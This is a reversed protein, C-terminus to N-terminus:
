ELRWGSAGMAPQADTVSIGPHHSIATAANARANDIPFDTICLQHPFVWAVSGRDWGAEVRVSTPVVVEVAAAHRKRGAIAQSMAVVRRHRRHSPDALSTVAQSDLIILHTMSRAPGPGRGM